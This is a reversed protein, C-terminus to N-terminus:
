RMRQILDDVRSKFRIPDMNAAKQLWFRADDYRDASVANVGIAYSVLAEDAGYEISKRYYEEALQHNKDAYHILGLYYHPAHHDYRQELAAMFSLKAEYNNGATYYASGEEILENFTKRWNLYAIFDNNMSNIDNWRSMRTMVTQSNEAATADPSLIVLSEIMTRLYTGSNLLFSVFAWSCIQFDRTVRGSADTMYNISSANVDALLLERPYILKAGSEGHALRKVTELWSLNESYSIEKSAQDYNISSYYIAFGELMWSPPNQIFGRMFQVLSQHALMAEEDASGRLIVLERRDTQSYHLYVAGPRSIGLRDTVYSNYATANAFVRVRFLHSVPEFRFFDNFVGYRLELQRGISELSSDAGPEAFLEYHATKYSNGSGTQSFLNVALLVLAPLLIYKKM